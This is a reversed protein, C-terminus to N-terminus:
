DITFGQTQPNSYPTQLYQAIASRGPALRAPWVLDSEYIRGNCWYTSWDRGEFGDAFAPPRRLRDGRGGGPKRSMYNGPVVYPAEPEHELATRRQLQPDHLGTSGM